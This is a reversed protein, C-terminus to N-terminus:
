RVNMGLVQADGDSHPLIGLLVRIITSRGSGNPGLLGFSAGPQIDFSVDRVAVLSGFSRSLHRASIVPATM